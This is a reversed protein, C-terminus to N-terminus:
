WRTADFTRGGYLHGTMTWQRGDVLYTFDGPDAGSHLSESTFPNVPWSWGAPGLTKALWRDFASGPRLQNLAPPRRHRNAWAGVSIALDRLTLRTIRDAANRVGQLYAPRTLRALPQRQVPIDASPKSHLVCRGDEWALEYGSQVMAGGSVPVAKLDQLVLRGDKNPVPFPPGGNM